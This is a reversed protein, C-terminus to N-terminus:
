HKSSLLVPMTTRCSDADSKTPLSIAGVGLVLVRYIRDNTGNVSAMQGSRQEQCFSKFIHLWRHDRVFPRGWRSAMFPDHLKKYRNIHTESSEFRYYTMSRRKRRNAISKVKPSQWQGPRFILIDAKARVTRRQSSTQILVITLSRMVVVTSTNRSQIFPDWPIMRVMMARWGTPLQEYIKPVQREAIGRFWPVRDDILKMCAFAHALMTLARPQKADVLDIFRPDNRSPMGVLRRSTGMPDDTGESVGKYILGIYSLVKQYTQKDAPTMAEFDEAWTLLKEFPKSHQRDFLEAEDSMDPKGYFVGSSQIWSPGVLEAWRSCIFRTGKALRLWQIPDLSPLTSDEESESLVFLAHFSVLISTVYIAEINEASLNALAKRHGDIARDFYMRSINLMEQSRRSALYDNNGANTVKTALAQDVGLHPLKWRDTLSRDPHAPNYMPNRIEVVKPAPIM